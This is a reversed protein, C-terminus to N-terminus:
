SLLMEHANNKIRESYSAALRELASHLPPLLTRNQNTVRRLIGVAASPSIFYKENVPEPDVIDILKSNVIDNPASSVASQFLDNGFALGGTLWKYKIRPEGNEENIASNIIGFTNETFDKFKSPIDNISCSTNHGKKLQSKIRSAIWSVTPVSVANGAAHYRLSDVENKNIKIGMPQTWNTPFGQLREAETPTLRRVKDYYSIYTRSWDTGTHRGSTAALCYSIKPVFIGLKENVDHSMFGARANEPKTSGSAEHLVSAANLFSGMWACIYIRPRSQPVGFYRTNLERWAVGYGMSTLSDLIIKFDRGEHSNLLGAVNELLVVKPLQEEVLNIFDYFLGSNKGKLGDRVKSGRAISVDQCPFGGTWVAANPIDLTRLLKIDSGIKVAPWHHRLIKKCFENNECQFKIQFGEQEFGLDFGGIGAFFSNVTMRDINNNLFRETVFSLPDEINSLSLKKFEGQLKVGGELIAILM